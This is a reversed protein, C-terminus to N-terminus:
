AGQGAILVFLAAKGIGQGLVKDAPVSGDGGELQAETDGRRRIFAVAVEGAHINQGIATGDTM